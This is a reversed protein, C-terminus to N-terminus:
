SRHVADYVLRKPVGSRRAVDVIAQKRPVGDAEDEAVWAALTVPDTVAEAVATNLAICGEPGQSGSLYVNITFRFMRELMPRLPLHADILGTFSQDLWHFTRDLAALYIARKDGFAAHLSPRNVGTVGALDDLSTAAFGQTRFRASASALVADRDFARPRGRPRKPLETRSQM